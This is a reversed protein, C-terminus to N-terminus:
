HWILARTYKSKCEIGRKGGGVERSFSLKRKMVLREKGGM